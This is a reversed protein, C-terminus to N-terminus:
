LAPWGPPELDQHDFVFRLDAAEQADRQADVAVADDLRGRRGFRERDGLAAPRVEDDEVEAQGVEVADVDDALQAGPERARDEDDRRAVLFAVLHPREVRAGVVVQGLREARALQQRADADGHAVAVARDAFRGLAHEVAAFKADVAVAVLHRHAALGHLQRRELVAQEVRQDAVGPLDDGARLQQALDPAFRVGRFRM